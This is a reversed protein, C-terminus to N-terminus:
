HPHKGWRKFAIGHFLSFATEFSITTTDVSFLQM